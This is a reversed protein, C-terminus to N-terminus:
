QILIHIVNHSNILEQKLEEIEKNKKDRINFYLKICEKDLEDIRKKLEKNKEELSDVQTCLQKESTHLIANRGELQKNEEKLKENETHLRNIEKVYQELKYDFDRDKNKTWEKWAQNQKELDCKEINIKNALNLIHHYSENLKDYAINLNKYGKELDDCKKQLNMISKKQLNMISKNTEKCCSYDCKQCESINM